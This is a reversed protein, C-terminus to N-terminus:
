PKTSVDPTDGSVPAAPKPAHPDEKLADRLALIVGGPQRALTITADTMERFNKALQSNDPDNHNFILHTLGKIMALQEPGNKAAPPLPLVDARVV